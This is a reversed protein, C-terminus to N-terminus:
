SKSLESLIKSLEGEVGRRNKQISSVKKQWNGVDEQRTRQWDTFETLFSSASTLDLDKTSSVQSLKKAEDTLEQQWRTMQTLLEKKPWALAQGKEEMLAMIKKNVDNTPAKKKEEAM